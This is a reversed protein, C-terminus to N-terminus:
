SAKLKQMFAKFAPQLEEFLPNTRNKIMVESFLKLGVAFETAQGQQEFLNKANIKEIISFIEDHNDFEFQIPAATGPDGNALALQELTIKYRNAKKNM